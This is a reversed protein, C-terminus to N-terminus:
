LHSFIFMIMTLVHDVLYIKGERGTMQSFVPDECAQLLKETIVSTSKLFTLIIEIAAIKIIIKSVNLDMESGIM